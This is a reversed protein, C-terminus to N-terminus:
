SEIKQLERRLLNLATVSTKRINRERNNGFRFLWAKTRQPGAIAIWITGVPKQDTGGGPGAIGTTAVAFDTHLLKRVGDAMQEAVPESVAGNIRLVEEDVKLLNAKVENAYSVVAGKFYDSSGAVSTILTAIAGGTCSEATSLSLGKERLLIGIVGQLSEADQGFVVEGLINQILQAQQEVRARTKDASGTYSTLRLKVMGPSPLYALSIDSPLNEEIDALRAALDSEPVGQTLITRHVVTGRSINKEIWPIIQDRVLHEMEYPVGPTAFYNVGNNQFHMGSATGIKNIVPRCSSPLEAQKRHPEQPQRNYSRFLAEINKYVEANFVLEGGFYDALTHKTIDDKTPGLGGTMFVLKTNSHVQSLAETIAEAKDAVTRKQKVQIGILNLQSAIFAANTDITQGILIEDGITIIEAQM